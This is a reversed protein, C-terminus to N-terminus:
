LSLMCSGSEAEQVTDQSHWTFFGLQGRPFHFVIFFLFSGNWSLSGLGVLRGVTLCMHSAM